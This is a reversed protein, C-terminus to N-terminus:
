TYKAHIRKREQDAIARNRNEIGAPNDNYIGLSEPLHVYNDVTACRLFFEYDGAVLYSDDFLGHDDHLSRRWMPMCGLRYYKKLDELSYRPKRQLQLKGGDFVKVIDSYAADYGLDLAAALKAICDKNKRDDTNANTIYHGSPIEKIAMNWATYLNPTHDTFIVHDVHKGMQQSAKNNGTVLIIEPKKTQQKLNDICGLTLGLTTNYASIIATVKAM